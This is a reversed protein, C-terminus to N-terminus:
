HKIMSTNFDELLIRWSVADILLHHIVWFFRYKNSQEKLVLMKMIPGNSIDLSRQAKSEWEDRMRIRTEEDLHHIDKYVLEWTKHESDINGIYKNDHKKFLTLLGDHHEM